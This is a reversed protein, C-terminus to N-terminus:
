GIHVKSNIVLDLAWCFLGAATFNVRKYGGKWFAAIAFLVMAAILLLVHLNM